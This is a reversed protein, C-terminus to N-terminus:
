ASPSPLCTRAVLLQKPFARRSEHAERKGLIMMRTGSPLILSRLGNSSFRDTLLVSTCNIHTCKEAWESGGLVQCCACFLRARGWACVYPLFPCTAFGECFSPFFASKGGVICSSKNSSFLISDSCIGPFRNLAWNLDPPKAPCQQAPLQVIDPKSKTCM